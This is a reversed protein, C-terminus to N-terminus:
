SDGDTDRQRISVNDKQRKTFRKVQREREKDSNRDIREGVVNANCVTMRDNAYRDFSTWIRLKFQM